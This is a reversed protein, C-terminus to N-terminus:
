FIVVILINKWKPVCHGLYSRGNAIEINLQDTAWEDMNFNM